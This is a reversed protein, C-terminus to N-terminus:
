CLRMQYDARDPRYGCVLWNPCGKYQELTAYDQLDVLALGCEPCHVPRLRPKETVGIERSHLGM